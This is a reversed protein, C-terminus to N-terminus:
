KILVMKKIEVYNNARLQYFYVGSSLRSGDFEIEYSGSLQVKSVLTQIERGLLDYIKLLVLSLESLQYKIRTTPNFPNPYNQELLYLNIARKDVEVSNYGGNKFEEKLLIAIRKKIDGSQLDWHVGDACFQNFNYFDMRVGDGNNVGDTFTGMLDLYELGYKTALAEIQTKKTEQAPLVNAIREAPSYGEAWIGYGNEDLGGTMTGSGSGIPISGLIIRATPNLAQIQEIYASYTQQYGFIIAKNGESLLGFRTLKATVTDPDDGYVPYFYKVSDIASTRLSGGGNDNSSIPFFYLDVNPIAFVKNKITDLYFWSTSSYAMRYGGYHEDIIEAGTYEALTTHFYGDNYQSDGVYLVRKARYNSTDKESQSNYREYPNIDKNFILTPNYITLKTVDNLSSNYISLRLILKNNYIYKYAYYEIYSYDGDVVKVLLLKTGYWNSEYGEVALDSGSIVHQAGGIDRFILGNGNLDNRNIWFGLTANSDEEDTFYYGGSYIFFFNNTYIDVFKPFSEGHNYKILFADRYTSDVFTSDISFGSLHYVFGSHIIPETEGDSQYINRGGYFFDILQNDYTQSYISISLLAFLIIFIKM